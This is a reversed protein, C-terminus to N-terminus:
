EPRPSETKATQTAGLAEFRRATDTQLEVIARKLDALQYINSGGLESVRYALTRYAEFFGTLIELLLMTTIRQHPVLWDMWIAWRNRPQAMEVARRLLEEFRRFSEQDLFSSVDEDANYVPFVQERLRKIEEALQFVAEDLTM